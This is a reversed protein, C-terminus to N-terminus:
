VNNVHYYPHFQIPISKTTTVAVISLVYQQKHTPKKSSTTRTTTMSRNDKTRAINKRWIGSKFSILRCYYFIRTKSKISPYTRNNNIHWRKTHQRYQWEGMTILQQQNCYIHNSRVISNNQYDEKESSAAWCHSFSDLNTTTTLMSELM